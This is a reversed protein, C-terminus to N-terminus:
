LFISCFKYCSIVVFIYANKRNLGNKKYVKAYEIKENRYKNCYRKIIEGIGSKKELISM